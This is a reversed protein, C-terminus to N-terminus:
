RASPLVTCIGAVWRLSSTWGTSCAILRLSKKSRPKHMKSQWGLCTCQHRQHLLMPLHCITQKVALRLTSTTVLTAHSLASQSTCTCHIQRPSVRTLHFRVNSDRCACDRTQQCVTKARLAQAVLSSGLRGYLLCTSLWMALECRSVHSRM